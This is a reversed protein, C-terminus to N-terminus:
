YKGVTAPLAVPLTLTTLVAGFEGAVIANLPLPIAAVCVSDSLAFLRLKPLTVVPVEDVCPTVTVFVPFALTFIVWIPRLPLAPNEKVPAATGTVREADCLKVKLTIKLGVVAPLAAPLTVSVLLALPDGEVIEREPVATWGAVCLTVSPQIALVEVTEPYLTYRLM